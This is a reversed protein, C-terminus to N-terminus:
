SFDVVNASGQRGRVMGTKGVWEEAMMAKFLSPDSPTRAWARKGAETHGCLIGYEPEGQRDHWITYADVVFRSTPELDIELDAPLSLQKQFDEPSTRSWERNPPTAGYVGVGHKTAYYGNSTVMGFKEQERRCRLVVEAISHMVYNNGPGGFFPLGGTLTRPRPDSDPIGLVHQTLFPMVPFCSYFDFFAMEDLSRDAQALSDEVTAKIAPSDALDPRHSVFWSDHADQGGHVYVWKSEPIGLERAVEPTTVIVAAAQDVYLESNLYRTYPYGLMRNKATPTIIDEATRAIPFWAYPNQDAVQSCAEGFRGLRQRHEEVSLGQKARLATELLPYIRVPLDAGHSMEVDLTGDRQIGVMPINISESFAGIDVGARGALRLSHMVECGALVALRCKGAALNDAARNVLWQPTNGGIATYEKIKPNAGLKEALSTPADKPSWSFMNVVHLADAKAGLDPVGADAAAAEVVLRMADFPGVIQEVTEPRFIQQGVGVIIPKVMM